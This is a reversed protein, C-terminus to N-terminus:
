ERKGFVRISDVTQLEQYLPLHLDVYDDYWEDVARNVAKAAPSIYCDHFAVFGGDNVYRTYEIDALVGKTTHDGDIFLVDIGSNVWGGLKVLEASNGRVFNAPASGQYKDDGVLDIAYITASPNGEHLCVVSAGYEVGINVITGNKPTLLGLHYLLRRENETLWGRASLYDM